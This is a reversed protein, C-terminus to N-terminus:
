AHADRGHRGGGPHRPRQRRERRDDRRDRRREAHGAPVGARRRQEGEVVARVRLARRGDQVAQGRGPARRHEEEHALLHPAVGREGALHGVAPVLDGHVAVPM